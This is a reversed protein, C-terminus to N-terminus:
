RNVITRVFRLSIAQKTLTDESRNLIILTIASLIFSNPVFADNTISAPYLNSFLFDSSLTHSVNFKHNRYNVNPEKFRKRIFNTIQKSGRGFVKFGYYVIFFIHHNLWPNLLT